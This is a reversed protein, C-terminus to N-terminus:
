FSDGVSAVEFLRLTETRIARGYQALSLDSEGGGGGGGGGGGCKLKAPCACMGQSDAHARWAHGWDGSGPQSQDGSHLSKASNASHRTLPCCPWCGLRHLAAAALAM